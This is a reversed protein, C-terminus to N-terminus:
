NENVVEPSAKVGALGQSVTPYNSSVVYNGMNCAYNSIM